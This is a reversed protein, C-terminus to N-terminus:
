SLPEAHPQPSRRVMAALSGAPSPSSATSPVTSLLLRFARLPGPQLRPGKVARALSARAQDAQFRVNAEIDVLFISLAGVRLVSNADENGYLSISMAVSCPSQSSHFDSTGCKTTQIPSDPMFGVDGSYSSVRGDRHSAQLAIGPYKSRISELVVKAEPPAANPLPEWGRRISIVKGVPSYVELFGAESCAAVIYDSTSSGGCSLKFGAHYYGVEDRGYRTYSFRAAKPMNAKALAVAEAESMGLRVAGVEFRTKLDTQLDAYAHTAILGLMLILKKM